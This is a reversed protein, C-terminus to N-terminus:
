VQQIFFDDKKKKLDQVVANVAETSYLSFDQEQQLILESLSSTVALSAEFERESNESPDAIGLGGFRVPLSVISREIDSVARGIISPIFINRICEELPKFLDKTSPITRQVFTWRHSICKTYASYAAQPEELAIDAM